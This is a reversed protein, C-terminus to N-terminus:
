VNNGASKELEKIRRKVSEPLLAKKKVRYDYAVIIGEGVAAIRRAHHSVVCHEMTYRDDAINTTRVGVSLTDPFTVPYKFKCDISALIPGVDMQALAPIFDIKRMYAIRATEFYRFYIINNVHGLADMEGWAVPIEVVIPYHELLEKM